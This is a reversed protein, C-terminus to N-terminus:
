QGSSRLLLSLPGPQWAMQQILIHIQEWIASKVNESTIPNNLSAWVHEWEIEISLKQEWKALSHHESYGQQLLENYLNKHTVFRLAIRAQATTLM